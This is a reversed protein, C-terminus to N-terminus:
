GARLHVESVMVHASSEGPATQEAEAVCFQYRTAASADPRRALEDLVISQVLQYAVLETPEANSPM